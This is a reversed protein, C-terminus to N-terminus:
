STARPAAEAPLADATRTGKRGAVRPRPNLNELLFTLGVTAFLVALFVAIPLTKSRPGILQTQGAKNLPFLRSREETSIGNERQQADVYETLAAAARDGLAQSERPTAAVSVISVIPLMAGGNPGAPVTTAQLVGQIPGSQRLIRRVPDSTVFSAYITALTPLRAEAAAELDPTTGASNKGGVLSSGLKFGPTTVLLRSYSAWQESKRYTFQPKGDVFSVKAVALVALALALVCGVAVLLAFRRIVALALRLDM